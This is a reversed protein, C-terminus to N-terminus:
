VKLRKRFAAGVRANYLRQRRRYNESIAMNKKYFEVANKLDHDSWRYYNRTQHYPYPTSVEIFPTSNNFWDNVNIHELPVGRKTLKEIFQLGKNMDKEISNLWNVEYQPFPFKMANYRRVEEKVKATLRREMEEKYEKLTRKM